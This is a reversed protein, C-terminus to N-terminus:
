LIKIKHYLHERWKKDCIWFNHGGFSDKNYQSETSFKYANDWDAVKGINYKLMNLSFYVDEPGITLNLLKICHQTSSNFITNEISVKNIVDIMCQKTRLSFGGNGVLNINHNQNKSWPAGIYDWKMFDNINSKFVCSDEQYILIKDGNFLNWFEISALLKSYTSQNLNDYNTKIIKINETIKNCMEKIFEYNLNGCVITHSWDTGLKNITNRILFELHPFCRYEILVAENNCNLNIIPLNILRIYDLYKYCFYRFGIKNNTIVSNKNCNYLLCFDNILNYYTNNM